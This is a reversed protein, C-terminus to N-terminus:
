CFIGRLSNEASGTALDRAAAVKQAGADIREVVVRIEAQLADADRDKLAQVVGPFPWSAYGTTLGPAYLPHHFWARGPLGSKDLFAREVQVIADNLRALAQADPSAPPNEQLRDLVADLDIGSSTLRDIAQAVPSFDPVLAPKKRAEVAAQSG